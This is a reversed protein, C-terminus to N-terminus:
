KRGPYTIDYPCYSPRAGRAATHGCPLKRTKEFNPSAFSYKCGPEEPVTSFGEYHVTDLVNSSGSGIDIIHWLTATAPIQNWQDGNYFGYAWEVGTTDMPFGQRNTGRGDNYYLIIFANTDAVYDRANLENQASNPRDVWIEYVNATQGTYTTSFGISTSGADGYFDIVEPGYGQASDTILEAYPLIGHQTSDDKNEFNVIGDAGSRDDIPGAVLLDLDQITNGPQSIRTGWSLIVRVLADSTQFGPTMYFYFQPSTNSGTLSGSGEWQTNTLEYNWWLDLLRTQVDSGGTRDVFTGSLSFYWRRKFSGQPTTRTADFSLTEVNFAGKSDSVVTFDAKPPNQNQVIFRAPNVSDEWVSVTINPLQDKQGVAL